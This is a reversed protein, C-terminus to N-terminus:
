KNFHVNWNNLIDNYDFHNCRLDAKQLRSTILFVIIFIKFEQRSRENTKLWVYLRLSM